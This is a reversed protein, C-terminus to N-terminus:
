RRTSIRIYLKIQAIKCRGFEQSSCATNAQFFVERGDNTTQPWRIVKVPFTSGGIAQPFRLAKAVIQKVHLRFPIEVPAGSAIDVRWIKGKAWIVINKGDPTWSFGPYVGFIAWTEQQDEDLGDWLHRIQGSELNFLALVSKGRVRRM